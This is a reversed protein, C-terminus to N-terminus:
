ARGGNAVMSPRYIRRQRSPLPVIDVNGRIIIARAGFRARAGEIIRQFEYDPIHERFVIAFEGRPPIRQTDSM